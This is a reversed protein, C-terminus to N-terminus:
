LWYRCNLYKEVDEESQITDNLIVTLSIYACVLFAAILAGIAANKTNGRLSTKKVAVEGSEILKPPTMEMIEGVYDSAVEATTDVIKKAMEADPDQASISLIRTDKPNEVEIKKVLKKYDMDLHLKDVERSMVSRGTAMTKYDVTLQTGIQLTM